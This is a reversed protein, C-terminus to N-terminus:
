QFWQLFWDTITKHRMTCQSSEKPENGKIIPMFIADYCGKKSLNGTKKDIWFYDITKPTPKKGLASSDKRMIEAWIPLAGSSGSIPMKQNDDTGIWVVGLHNNNFGAFWSDRQGSSTGTKGALVTNEKFLRKVKRGTGEHMVSQMAFQTQHITAAGIRRELTLPYRNLPTGHKDTIDRITKLPSYFGDAAITSYMQTVELPSLDIAGLSLAPVQPIKREVGLLSLIDALYHIGIDNALRAMAVNYSKALAENIMVNGHFQKSYNQPSWPGQPTDINLPSDSVLHNLSYGQELAAILTAPKVLSGIQRKADIARNFGAARANKDGILALVDATHPNIIIASGNLQDLEYDSNRHKTQIHEVGRQLAKQARTQWIPDLHTFIRLGKRHLDTDQYDRRLQRRVLDLYAPASQSLLRSTSTYTRTSIPKSKEQNTQQESIIGQNALLNLVLNRRELAREPNRLPNYLSPGKLMGVLLACEAIDLDDITKGFLYQSALGFGHIAKNGDQAVFVENIYAELLEDKSTHIELLLAMIAEIGKRALSRDSSLFFNKALQQTITSGGQVVKGAKINALMARAIGTSSLGLHSYFNRDETAILAKILVDPVDDIKVKLRDQNLQPHIRGIEIPLLRAYGNQNSKVDVVRNNNASFRARVTHQAKFGDWWYFDPVVYSLEHGRIEYTLPLSQSSARFGALKLQEVATTLHVVKSNYLELPRAYVVSPESYLKDNLKEQVWADLYAM